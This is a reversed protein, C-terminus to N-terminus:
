RRARAIELAGAQLSEGTVDAYPTATDGNKLLYRMRENESEFIASGDHWSKWACSRANVPL